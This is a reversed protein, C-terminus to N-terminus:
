WGMNVMIKMGDQLTGDVFCDEMRGPLLAGTYSLVVEEFLGLDFAVIFGLVFM